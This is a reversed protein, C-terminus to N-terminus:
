DLYTKRYNRRDVADCVVGSTESNAPCWKYFLRNIFSNSFLDLDLLKEQDFDPYSFVIAIGDDIRTKLYGKMIAWTDPHFNVCGSSLYGQPVLIPGFGKSNVTNAKSLLDERLWIDQNEVDPTRHITFPSYDKGEGIKGDSMKVLPMMIATDTSGNLGGFRAVYNFYDLRAILQPTWTHQYVGDESLYVGFDTDYIEKPHSSQFTDGIAKNAPLRRGVVAYFEDRGAVVVPKWVVNNFSNDKEWFSTTGDYINVTVVVEFSEVTKGNPKVKGPKSWLKLNLYALPDFWTVILKDNKSGTDFPKVNWRGMADRKYFSTIESFSRSASAERGSSIEAFQPSGDSLYGVLVVVHYYTNYGNHGLATQLYIVDGPHIKDWLKGDLFDILPAEHTYLSANRQIWETQFITGSWPFPDPHNKYEGDLGRVPFSLQKLYASVFSSCSRYEDWSYIGPMTDVALESARLAIKTRADMVLPSSANVNNAPPIVVVLMVLLVVLTFFRMGKM